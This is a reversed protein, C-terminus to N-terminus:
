NKALIYYALPDATMVTSEPSAILATFDAETGIFGNAVALDYASVGPIGPPGQTESVVLTVAEKESLVTNLQETVIVSDTM